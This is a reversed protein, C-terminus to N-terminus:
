VVAKDGLRVYNTHNEATRNNKSTVRRCVTDLGRTTETWSGSSPGQEGIRPRECFKFIKFTIVDALPSSRYALPGLCSKKVLVQADRSFVKFGESHLEFIQKFEARLFDEASM